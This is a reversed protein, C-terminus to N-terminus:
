VECNIVSVNKKFVIEREYSNTFYFLKLINDDWIVSSDTYFVFGKKDNIQKKSTISKFQIDFKTVLSDIISNKCNKYELENDSRIYVKIPFSNKLIKNYKKVNELDWNKVKHDNQMDCCVLHSLCEHESDIGFHKKTRNFFLNDEDHHFELEHKRKYFFKDQQYFQTDYKVDNSYEDLLKDYSDILTYDDDFEIDHNKPSQVFAPIYSWELIEFYRLRAVGSYMFVVLDDNLVRWGTNLDIFKEINSSVASPRMCVIGIPHHVGNKFLDQCMSKSYLFSTHSHEMFQYKLEDLNIDIENELYDEFVKIGTNIEDKQNADEMRFDLQNFDFKKYYRLQLNNDNSFYYKPVINRDFSILKNNKNRYNTEM